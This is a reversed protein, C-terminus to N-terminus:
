NREVSFDDKSYSSSPQKKFFPLTYESNAEFTITASGQLYGTNVGSFKENTSDPAVGAPWSINIDGSYDETQITLQLIPSNASDHIEYIIDEEKETLVFSARLTREYPKIAKATILYTGTPLNTFEITKEEVNKNSLKGTKEKIINGEKDQVTNGHIDTINVVYQTEVDSYRLEDINNSLSFSISDKGKEYTYAKPNTNDSLLDSEFYFSKAEYVIDKNKEFVYKALSGGILMIPILVLFIKNFNLQRKTNYRRKKSM